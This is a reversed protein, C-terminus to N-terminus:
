SSGEETPAERNTGHHDGAGSPGRAAFVVRARDTLGYKVVYELLAAELAAVHDFPSTKTM